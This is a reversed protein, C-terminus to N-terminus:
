GLLRSIDVYFALTMLAALLALGVRQGQLQAQESLPSGKIAEIAFYLLHGGDLLPIPLLNLVGLSVSVVALFKIFYGLGYSATKGATEAISIPGGLNEVSAKGTLMRGIVRLMLLSMDATKSIAASLAAVPGLRVETRYEDFLHPSIQAAAGIRGIERGDLQVAHPIVLLEHRESGREVELRLPRDPHAQVAEVLDGWHAISEGNVSRVRDGPRLGAQAAPDGPTLEGIRAPLLPRMPSLGLNSLLAPDDPLGALADGNLVRVLELGSEDRVRVALDEGGLVEAMLAFVAAEWTPTPRNAVALLEDGPAFRAEAAISGPAVTGVVARTGVDGAVFIAWYALVAFLFNFFPGATVIVFRKWLLQRNFALHKEAEPVSGEQEDLMKVYGGLPIAALVYETGDRPSVYRLLPKGFGISFRLVKVGLKRAAWFHGFEHVAILIALAVIFWGVTYLLEM